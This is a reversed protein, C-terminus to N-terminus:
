YKAWNAPNDEDDTWRAPNDIIYQRIRNLEADDRIIRDHYNRQWLKGPFSPWNCHKVGRIYENTTLSTFAQVIRGLSGPLTGRPRVNAYSPPPVRALAANPPPTDKHDGQRDEDGGNDPDDMDSDRLHLDPRICSEGRRGKGAEADCRDTLALVGHIHNPMVIFADLAVNPFRYPLDNWVGQAMQGAPNALMKRGEVCGFLCERNQTCITVFYAWARSYDYGKLRISRRHHKEPDYTMPSRFTVLRAMMWLEAGPPLIQLDTPGCGEM